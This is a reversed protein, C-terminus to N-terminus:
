KGDKLFSPPLYGIEGDEEYLLGLETRLTLVSIIQRTANPSIGHLMAYKTVQVIKRPRERIYGAILLTNDNLPKVARILDSKRFAPKKMEM